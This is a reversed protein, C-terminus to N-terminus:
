ATIEYQNIGYDYQSATCQKAYCGCYHTTLSWKFAWKYPCESDSSYYVYYACGAATSPYKNLWRPGNDYGYSDYQPCSYNDWTKKYNNYTGATAIAHAAGAAVTSLGKGVSSLWSRRRTGTETRRTGTETRRRSFWSWKQAQANSEVEDDGDEGENEDDDEAFSSNDSVEEDHGDDEGEDEDDGEVFSIDPVEEDDVDDEVSSSDSVEDDEGGIIDDGIEDRELFSSFEDDQDKDKMSGDPEVVVSSRSAVRVLDCVGVTFSTVLISVRM